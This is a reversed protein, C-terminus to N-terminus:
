RPGLPTPGPRVLHQYDEIEQEAHAEIETIIARQSAQYRREREIRQDLDALEARYRERNRSDDGLAALQAAIRDHDRQLTHEQRESLLLRNAVDGVRRDRMAIIEDVNAYIQHLQWTRAATAAQAALERAQEEERQRIKEREAELAAAELAREQETLPARLVEREHGRHDLIRRERDAVTPPPTSSYHATGADDIWHYIQAQLVPASFLFPLLM